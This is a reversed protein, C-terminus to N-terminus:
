DDEPPTMLAGFVGVGLLVLIALSLVVLITIGDTVAVKVTLAALLVVIFLSGALVLNRGEM